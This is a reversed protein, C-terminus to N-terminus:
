ERAVEKERTASRKKATRLRYSPGNMELIHARHTVRDLLAVALRETQFVKGWEVFPLNSNLIVSRREHRESLAQFLLDAGHESIPLYGLEDIVVLDHSAFRRLYRHLQHQEQAEELESVLETATYARVRKGQQCAAVALATCVHTKGTGSSGIAIVNAAEALYAGSALEQLREIKAGAPLEKADLEALTKIQRFRADKLRRQVRRSERDQVEEELLAHLYALFGGGANSVEKAVRAHVRRVSPLKLETLLLAVRAEITADVM